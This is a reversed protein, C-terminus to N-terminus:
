YNGSGGSTDGYPLWINKIQTARQLFEHGEAQAPSFWDRQRGHNCFTHKLNGASLEEVIASGNSDSGFYWLAQVSDHAALTAIHQSASGNALTIVGSPINAHHLAHEIEAAISAYNDSPVVVVTNGMAVLPAILSVMGLLPRENPCIAAAVGMPEHTALTIARLPASHVAGDYKDAWAAYYCLRETSVDIEQPEIGLRTLMDRKESIADAL